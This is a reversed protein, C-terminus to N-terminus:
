TGVVADENYALVVQDVVDLDSAGQVFADLVVDQDVYSAGDAQFAALFAVQYAVQYAVLCAAQFAVLSAVQFALQSAAQCAAM